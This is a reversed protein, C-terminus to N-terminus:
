DLLANENFHYKDNEIGLGPFKGPYAINKGSVPLLLLLM